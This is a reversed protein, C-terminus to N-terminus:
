KLIVECTTCVVKLVVVAVLLVNVVEVVATAVVIAEVVNSAIGDPLLATFELAGGLELDIETNGVPTFAPIPIAAVIIQRARMM